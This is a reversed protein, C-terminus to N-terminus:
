KGIPCTSLETDTSYVACIGSVIVNASFKFVTELETIASDKSSIAVIKQFVELIIPVTSTNECQIQM